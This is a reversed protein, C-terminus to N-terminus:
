LSVLVEYRKEIIERVPLTINSFPNFMEFVQKLYKASIHWYMELTTSVDAHGLLVAIAKVHTHRRYAPTSLGVPAHLM